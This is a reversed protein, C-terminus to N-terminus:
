AEEILTRVLETLYNEHTENWGWPTTFLYPEGLKLRSKNIIYGEYDDNVFETITGNQIKIVVEGHPDYTHEYENTNFEYIRYGNTEGSVLIHPYYMGCNGFGHCLEGKFRVEFNGKLEIVKDIEKKTAM